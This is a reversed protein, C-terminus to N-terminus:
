YFQIPKVRRLEVTVVTRGTTFPVPEGYDTYIYISITRVEKKSVPVYQIKNVATSQYKWHGENVPISRLLPAEIDGVVSATAIDSYVMINFITRLNMPGNANIRTFRAGEVNELTTEPCLDNLEFRNYDSLDLSLISSLSDSLKMDYGLTNRVVRVM